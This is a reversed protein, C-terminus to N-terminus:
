RKFSDKPNGGADLYSRLKELAEMIRERPQSSVWEDVVAKYTMDIYKHSGLVGRPPKSKYFKITAIMEGSYSTIYAGRSFTYQFPVLVIM